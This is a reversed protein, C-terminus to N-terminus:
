RAGGTSRRSYSQSSAGAPSASAAWRSVIMAWPGKCRMEKPASVAGFPWGRVRAPLGTVIEAFDELAAKSEREEDWYALATFAVIAVLMWALTVVDYIVFPVVYVLMHQSHTVFLGVIVGFQVVQAVVMSLALLGAGFVAFGLETPQGWQGDIIGLGCAGLMLMPLM